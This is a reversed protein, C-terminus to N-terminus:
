KGVLFKALFKMRQSADDSENALYRLLQSRDTHMFRIEKLELQYKMIMTDIQRIDSLHKQKSFETHLKSRCQHVTYPLNYDEVSNRFILFVFYFYNSNSLKEDFRFINTPEKLFNIFIVSTRFKASGLNIYNSQM